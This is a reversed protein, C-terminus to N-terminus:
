WELHAAFGDRTDGSPLDHPVNADLWARAKARFAEQGASWRLDV